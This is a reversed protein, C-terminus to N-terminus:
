RTRSDRSGQHPLVTSRGTEDHGASPPSAGGSPRWIGVIPREGAAEGSHSLGLLDEVTRLVTAHGIRQDYRGPVVMPGVLITLIHNGSNGDDEDWTLILLSNHTMAWNVYSDLHQALWADAVRIRAPDSGNHMNNTNNPVIVAVTPLQSWDTPLERLSVNESPLVPHSTAGQWNVWPNHKRVYQAHTCVSAGIEPLDESYGRFSLKAVRLASALNPTAFTHPCSNDSVGQLSGSFLVLYNPQSPHTAGFSQTMVAGRQAWQNVVPAAPSDIIQGFSHNEEIILVIHDPRPLTLQEQASALPTSTALWLGVCVVGGVFSTGVSITARGRARPHLRM